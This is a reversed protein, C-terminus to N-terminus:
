TPLQPGDLVRFALGWSSKHTARGQLHSVLHCQQLVAPTLQQHQVVDVALDLVALLVADQQDSPLLHSFQELGRGQMTGSRELSVICVRFELNPSMCQGSRETNQFRQPDLTHSPWPLGKYSMVPPNSRGLILCLRNAPASPIPPLRCEWTYFCYSRPSQSPNLTSGPAQPTPLTLHPQQHAPLVQPSEMRMFSPCALLCIVFSHFLTFHSLDTLIQCRKFLFYVMAPTPLSSLEQVGVPPVNPNSTPTPSPAWLAPDPSVKLSSLGCIPSSVRLTHSFSSQLCSLPCLSFLPRLPHQLSICVPGAERGRGRLVQTRM